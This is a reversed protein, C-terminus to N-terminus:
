GAEVLYPSNSGGADSSFLVTRGDPAFVPHPHSLQTTWSSGHRCLPLVRLRDGDPVHLALRSNGDRDQAPDGTFCGDAVLLTNAANSQVHGSRRGPLAYEAVREGDTSLFLIANGVYDGVVDRPSAPAYWSHQVGLTGDAVFYEHVLFDEFREEYLCRATKKWLRRADVAWLRNQVLSGGEHCFVITDPDRPHVLVHSIWAAEGWAVSVAGSGMDLSCVLSRPHLFFNETMTSYIRSTATFGPTRESLAFAARTGAADITPIGIRWGEPAEFVPDAGGTALHVRVLRAGDIVLASGTAPSVCYSQPHMAELTTLQAGRGTSPEVRCLQPGGECVISLILDGAGDFSTSTFYAHSGTRGAPLIRTVGRGTEPDNWREPTFSLPTPAM